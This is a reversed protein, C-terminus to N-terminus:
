LALRFGVNSYKQTPTQPYRFSVRCTNPSTKYSGGRIVRQTGSTPGTPNTQADSSYSDSYWDQCLELVNGSMDFLGLENPSKTAVPHTTDNSNDTYWGVENLDSSGSYRTGHSNMGGRAAYEWEAETPLRFNKGTLANLQTIFQQCEDWSVMEVPCQLNGTFNSPNSGMVAYWLAQTVETQGISYSSLTVQHAPKERDYADNGQEATAGMTFTGGEVNVMTFSLGNVTFTTPNIEAGNLLINILKIVDSINVDGDANVDGTLIPKSVVHIRCSSQMNSGDTSRVIVNCYGAAIGRVYGEAEVFAVNENSSVWELNKNTANEPLVTATLKFRDGVHLELESSNLQVSNVPISNVTVLCQASVGNTATCTITSQGISLANIKGSSTVSVVGPKSSAWTLTTNAGSEVIIPSFTYSEGLSLTLTSPITISTVIPENKVTVHILISASIHEVNLGTTKVGNAVAYIEYSGTMHAKVSYQGSFGDQYTYGDWYRTATEYTKTVSLASTNNSYCSTSVCTGSLGSMNWPVVTFSHGVYVTYDYEKDASKMSNSTLLLTLLLVFRLNFLIM